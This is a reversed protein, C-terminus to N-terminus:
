TFGDPFKTVCRRVFQSSELASIALPSLLKKESTGKGYVSITPLTTRTMGLSPRNIDFGVRKRSKAPANNMNHPLPAVNKGLKELESLVADATRFPCDLPHMFARGQLNLLGLKQGSRELITYGAGLSGPPYNAPRLVRPESALTPYFINKDWIHNGSTMGDVGFAFLEDMVKDTMGKGAAANECNIVVFDFLIYRRELVPLARELIARGPNGVIDGVFFIRM